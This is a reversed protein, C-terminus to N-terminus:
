EKPIEGLRKMEAIGLELARGYLEQDRVASASLHYSTGKHSGEKDLLGQEVLQGILYRVQDRTRHPSLIRQFDGMKGSGFEALYEAIILGITHVDLQKEALYAGAKELLSIIM